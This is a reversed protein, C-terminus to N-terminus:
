AASPNTAKKYESAKSLAKELKSVTIPKLLYDTCGLQSTKEITSIDREGSLIIVAADIGEKRIQDIVDTGLLKGSLYIDVLIIDPKIKRIKSLASNGESATAVVQYGLKKVLREEVLALLIDDEIIMVKEKHSYM